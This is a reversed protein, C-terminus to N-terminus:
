SCNLCFFVQKKKNTKAKKNKKAHIMPTIGLSCSDVKFSVLTHYKTQFPITTTEKVEAIETKNNIKKRTNVKREVELM